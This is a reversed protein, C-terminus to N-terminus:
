MVKAATNTSKRLLSRLVNWCKSTSIVNLFLPAEYIDRSWQLMHKIDKYFIKLVVFRTPSKILIAFYLIFKSWIKEMKYLTFNEHIKKWFTDM